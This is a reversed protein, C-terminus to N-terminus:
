GQLPRRVAISRKYRKWMFSVKAKGKLQSKSLMGEDTLKAEVENLAHKYTKINAHKDLEKLLFTNEVVVQDIEPNSKRLDEFFAKEQPTMEGRIYREVTELLLLDNMKNDTKYQAFFLKKLRMLCKYKQTKANDANTYGFNQAIEQMSKRQIYYADLLSKCPEGIKNMANEMFIFDANRKEHAELEEEVPVTEELNEAGFSFRQM